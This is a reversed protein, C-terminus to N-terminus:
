INTLTKQVYITYTVTVEQGGAIKFTSVVTVSRINVQDGAKLAVQSGPQTEGTVVCETITGTEPTLCNQALELATACSKNAKIRDIRVEPEDQTDTLTLTTALTMYGKDASSYYQLSITYTGTEAKRCIGNTIDLTKLSLSSSAGITQKALTGGVTLDSGYYYGEKTITASTFSMYNMFVGGRYKALRVNAFQSSSIDTNLSLDAKNKDIEIEYTETGTSPVTAVVVNFAASAKKGDATVTLTYSYTGPVAASAKVIIRDSATDYTVLNQKYTNNDTFAATESALPYNEGYQDFATVAIYRCYETNYVNSIKVSDTSLRVTKLYPAEAITVDYSYVYEEGAYVATVIVKVTGSKIPTVQGSATIIMTDPDSSEYKVSTYAIESKDTDLARFHAYYKSGISVKRNDKYSSATYDPATTTKTLTFNTENSIEAAVCMVVATSELKLNGNAQNVYSATVTATKGVETMYLKNGDKVYGNMVEAKYEITGAYVETVDIGKQDYLVCELPTEKGVTAKQTLIKLEVPTGVSAVFSLEDDEDSVTYTTGDKLYSHLTLTVKKGEESFAMSKVVVSSGVTNKVTFDGVERLQRMDGSYTLEIKNAATQKVSEMYDEVVLTKSASKVAKTGIMASMKITYVGAKMPKFVGTSSMYSSYDVGNADTVSWQARYTANVPTVTYSLDYSEGARLDGDEEETTVLTVKTPKIMLKASTKVTYQLKGATSYVKATLTVKKFKAATNGNTKVTITNSMTSKTAKISAKGVSVYSKGAGSVSWKVTQGKKLNTLTYTYKGKTSANEYLSAYTKQFKPVATAAKAPIAPITTIMLAIMCLVALLKKAKQYMTQEEKKSFIESKIQTQFGTQSVIYQIKDCM